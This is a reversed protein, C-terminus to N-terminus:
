QAVHQDIFSGLEKYLNVSEPADPVLLYGAHSMGEYVHLDARVGAARLKRHTRAVDSLFMDRTGTFLITPPFYDFEGYIPSLLPNTLSEGNAYLRAAASLLGEYVVLVRDLGQNTYLTDGTKSLDAWPTGAYVAGPLALDMAHFRHLSAMALGSGASTGGITITTPSQDKIIHQYVATVDDLAAPFPYKPPMRYDISVVVISLRSAILIAESIGAEGQGFVYAGGHVFLFLRNKHSESITAPTIRHINVGAIVDSLVKVKHKNILAPLNATAGSDAGKIMSKWEAASAPATRSNPYVPPPFDRIAQALEQSAGAPAPVQRGSITVGEKATLGAAISLENATLFFVLLGSLIAQAFLRM